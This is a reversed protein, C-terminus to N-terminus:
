NTPTLFWAAENIILPPIEPMPDGTLQCIAWTVAYGLENQLSAGRGFERLDDLLSTAQMRGLTVACAAGVHPNEPVMSRTDKIRDMLQSALAEDPKGAHLRGLAWIAAARTDTDFPANKPVLKRLAEDAATHNMQGMAQALHSLQVDAKEALQQHAMRQACKEQFVRLIPELTAAVELRSLGWAATTHVEPRPSELLALLRDVISKDDLTVLLLIAQEQGRWSEGNLMQRGQDLISDRLSEIQALQACSDCVRCRVAPDVDDLLPGLRAMKHPTPKAVLADATLRRVNADRSRITVDLVPMILEADIRLLHGLAMAQVAPQPDVALETLLLQADTGQHGALMSVAVLRDVVSEASKDIILARVSEELGTPQLQGLAAAAELRVNAATDHDRALQLLRPLAQTELMTALGRIALIHLRRAAVPGELRQIWLERMPPHGWRALAPEVIEAMELDGERVQGLLLDAAQQADLQVLAQAATLRTTRDQDPQELLKMLPAVTVELGTLGKSHASTIAAAARCQLDRRPMELAQSWLAPLGPPFQIESVPRPLVPDRYMIWEAEIAEARPVQSVTALLLMVAPALYKLM